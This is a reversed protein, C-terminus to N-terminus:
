TCCNRTEAEHFKTSFNMKKKKQLVHAYTPYQFSHFPPLIGNKLSTMMMMTIVTTTTTTSLVKVYFVLASQYLNNKETKWISDECVAVTELGMCRAGEQCVGGGRTRCVVGQAAAAAPPLDPPGQFLVLISSEYVQSYVVHTHRIPSLPLSLSLSFLLPSHSNSQISSLSPSLLSHSPFSPLNHIFFSFFCCICFRCYCSLEPTPPLLHLCALCSHSVLLPM